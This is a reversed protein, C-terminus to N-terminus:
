RGGAARASLREQWRSRLFRVTVLLARIAADASNSIFLGPLGLGLWLCFFWAVPLRVVWVGISTSLMPFRTDGVGRLAGAYVQGVGWFPQGLCLVRLGTAAASRVAPDATFLGVLPDAVIFCVVALGTMWGLARISGARALIRARGSEGAGVAQGVLATIAAGYGFAPMWALGILTLAVRQAAFLTTGLQLAILGYGLLGFNLILQEGLAPLGIGLIRKIIPFEPRWRAGRLVGSQFMVGLVFVAGLTRATAAAVAAGAVGLQPPGFILFVAVAINIVNVLGTAIMPTRSNGLGRMVAAAVTMLALAPLSLGAFQLYITGAQAVPGSAGILRLLSGAFLLAPVGLTVGIALGIILTQGALQGTGRMERAGRSQAALVMGGVSAGTIAAIALQILQTAAGVGSLVVTGLRGLLALNTLDLATAFLGDAIIPWALRDIARGEGRGAVGVRPRALAGGAPSNPWRM